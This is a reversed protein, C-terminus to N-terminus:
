LLSRAIHNRGAGARRRSIPTGRNPWRLQKAKPQTKQITFKPKVQILKDKINATSSNSLKNTNTPKVIPLPFLTNEDIATKVRPQTNVTINRSLKPDIQTPQSFVMSTTFSISLIWTGKILQGLLNQKTM